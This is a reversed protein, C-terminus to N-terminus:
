DVEALFGEEGKYRPWEPPKVVKNGLYFVAFDFWQYPLIKELPKHSIEIQRDTALALGHSGSFNNQNKFTLNLFNGNKLPASFGGSFFRRGDKPPVLISNRKKKPNYGQGWDEFRFDIGDTTIGNVVMKNPLSMHQIENLLWEKFKM